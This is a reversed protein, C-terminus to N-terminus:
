SVSPDRMRPPPHIQFPYVSLAPRFEAGWAFCRGLQRAIALGRAPSGVAMSIRKIEGSGFFALAACWRCGIALGPPPSAIARRGGAKIGRAFLM